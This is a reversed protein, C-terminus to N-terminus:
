LDTNGPTEAPMEAAYEGYTPSFSPTPRAPTPASAPRPIVSKPASRSVDITGRENPPAGFRARLARDAIEESSPGRQYGAVPVPEMVSRFRPNYQPWMSGTYSRVDIGGHGPATNNMVRRAADVSAQASSSP